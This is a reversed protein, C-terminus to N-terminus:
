RPVEDDRARRQAGCDDCHWQYNLRHGLFVDRNEVVRPHLHPCAKRKDALRWLWAYWEGVAVAAACSALFAVATITDPNQEVTENYAVIGVADM